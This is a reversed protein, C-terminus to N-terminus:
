LWGFHELLFYICGLTLVPGGWIMLDSKWGLMKIVDRQSRWSIFFAPQHTGKMLVVPPHLDFGEINGSEDQTAIETEVAVSAAPEVKVARVGLGAANWAAPNTIGAKTLAAAIKQQQTMAAASVVTAPDSLRVIQTGALVTEEFTGHPNSGNNARKRDAWAPAVSADLGPNQSLTGLVFLYNKPKICYEEVKIATDPDVAHRTLFEEVCGPMETRGLISRHYEEKFDCHLDMEAGRPDILVKGSGDDVYFPVHLVEEAVKAWETDKGRRKLQWAVSRYYFCEVRKLPSTMSYPRAALGSIEVLGMAASQVKSTPTNLILRKRQLLRFGKVFWYIGVAAGIGACVLLNDPRSSLFIALSMARAEAAAWVQVSRPRECTLPPNLRLCDFEAM